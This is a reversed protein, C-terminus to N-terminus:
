QTIIQNVNLAQGSPEPYEIIVLVMTYPINATAIATGNLCTLQIHLPQATNFNDFKRANVPEFNCKYAFQTGTAVGVNNDVVDFTNDPENITGNGTFKLSTDTFPFSNSGVRLLSGDAGAGFFAVGTTAEGYIAEVYVCGHKITGGLGIGQTFYSCDINSGTHKDASRLILRHIKNQPELINKANM